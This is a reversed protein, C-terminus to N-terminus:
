VVTKLYNHKVIEDIIRSIVAFSGPTLTTIKDFETHIYRWTLPISERLVYEPAIKSPIDELKRNMVSQRLGPIRKLNSMYNLVEDKPLMTIAVAPIGNALFGANDSYSAPLMVNDFSCIRAFISQVQSVLNTYKRAFVRDIKPPLDIECIVPVDGRGVCDFVFIDGDDNNLEKLKKALSFAGQSSVGFRGEEEGDTFIIRVNHVADIGAIKKAAELLAFVGSSNDNAGQTGPVRDYHAVLTKLKYRTDYCGSEFDVYIHEKGDIVLVSSKIGSELLRNQIFEKRNCDPQLFDIYDSPINM